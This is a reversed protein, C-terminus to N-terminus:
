AARAIRAATRCWAEVLKETLWDAATSFYPVTGPPPLAEPDSVPPQHITHM